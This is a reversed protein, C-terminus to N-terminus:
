IAIDVANVEIGDDVRVCRDIGLKSRKLVGDDVAEDFGNRGSRNRRGRMVFRPDGGEDFFEIVLAPRDVM